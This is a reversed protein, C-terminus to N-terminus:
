FFSGSKGTSDEDKIFILLHSGEKEEKPRGLVCVLGSDKKRM